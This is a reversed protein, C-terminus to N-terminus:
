GQAVFDVPFVSALGLISCRASCKDSSIAGATEGMVTEFVYICALIFPFLAKDALSHLSWFFLAFILLIDM